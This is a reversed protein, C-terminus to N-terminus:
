HKTPLAGPSCCPAAKKCDDLACFPNYIIQAVAGNLAVALDPIADRNFDGVALSIPGKGVPVVGKVEFKGGANRVLTVRNGGFEAVALDVWTDRDGDFAVVFVPEQDMKIRAVVEFAWCGLNHVIILAKFAPDVVAFDVKGDNTLDAIALGRVGHGVLLGTKFAFNGLCVNEFFVLKSTTAVVIDLDGDRDFDGTGLFAVNCPEAYPSLDLPAIKTDPFIVKLGISDLVAIDLGGDGDFDGVIVHNATILPLSTLKVVAPDTVKFSAWAPQYQTVVVIRKEYPGVGKGFLGWALATPSDALSFTTPKEWPVPCKAPCEKSGPNLGVFVTNCSHCALAFDDWGDGNFDGAIVYVPVVCDWTIDQVAPVQGLGSVVWGLAVAVLFTRKM